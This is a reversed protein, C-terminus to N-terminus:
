SRGFAGSVDPALTSRSLGRRHLEADSLRSLHEYLAADALANARATAWASAWAAIEKIHRRIPFGAWSLKEATGVPSVYTSTSM